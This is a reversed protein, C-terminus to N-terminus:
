QTGRSIRVPDDGSCVLLRMLFCKLVFIAFKGKPSKIERNKYPGNILYSSQFTFIYKVILSCDPCPGGRVSCTGLSVSNQSLGVLVRVAPNWGLASPGCLSFAAELPHPTILSCLTRRRVCLTLHFGSPVLGLARRPQCPLGAESSM